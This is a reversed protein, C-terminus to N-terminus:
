SKTLLVTKASSVYAAVLAQYHSVISGILPRQASELPQDGIARLPLVDVTTGTIFAGQLQSLGEQYLPQESLPINLRECIAVVQKRTVGSLVTESPPTFLKGERMFFLNSRSGETIAGAENVLLAEFAGARHRAAKVRDRFANSLSKIHPRKREGPYLIASVGQSLAKEGPFECAILGMWFLSRGPTWVMRVNITPRHNARVIREIRSRIAAPSAPMPVNSLAASAAMREMHEEFFLPITETIKIVEYISLGDTRLRRRSEGAPFLAGNVLIYDGIIDQIM